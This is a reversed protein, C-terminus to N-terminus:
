NRMQPRMEHHHTTNHWLRWEDTPTVLVSLVYVPTRLGRVGVQFRRIIRYYDVPYPKLHGPPTVEMEIRDAVLHGAAAQVFGAAATRCFNEDQAQVSKSYDRGFQGEMVQNLFSEKGLYGMKPLNEGDAKCQYHLLSKHLPMDGTFLGGRKKWYGDILRLQDGCADKINAPDVTGIHM